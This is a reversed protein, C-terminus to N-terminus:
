HTVVDQSSFMKESEGEWLHSLIHEKEFYIASRLM